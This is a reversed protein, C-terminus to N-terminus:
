LSKCSENIHYGDKGSNKAIYMAADAMYYMKEYTDFEQSCIAVGVSVSLNNEEYYQKLDTRVNNIFHEVKTKLEEIPMSKPIYVMFEDGGLRIKIDDKDFSKNIIEAMQKLIRDGVMHGKEDNVNKFNDLDILLVSGNLKNNKEVEMVIYDKIMKRNYLNTLPDHKSVYDLQKQRKIINFAMKRAYLTLFLGIFLIVFCYRYSKLNFKPSIKLEWDQSGHGILKTFKYKKLEKNSESIVISDQNVKKYSLKYDYGLNEMDKFDCLKLFEKLDLVLNSFGIFKEDIFIPNRIILGKNGQLLDYPGSIIYSKSEIALLADEKRSPNQLVNDEYANENGEKPYYYKVIGDPLYQISQIEDKEYLEKAIIDFKEQSLNGDLSWIASKLVETKSLFKCVTNEIQVSYINAIYNLNKNTEESIKLIELGIFAITILIGMCTVINKIKKENLNYEKVKKM